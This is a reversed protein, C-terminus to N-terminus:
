VGFLCHLGVGLGWEGPAIPSAGEGFPLSRCAQSEPFARGCPTPKGGSLSPLLLEGPWVPCHLRGVEGHMAHSVLWGSAASISHVRRCPLRLSHFATRRVKRVLCSDELEGFQRQSARPVCACRANGKRATHCCGSDRPAGEWEACVREPEELAPCTPEARRPGRSPKSVSKLVALLGHVRM